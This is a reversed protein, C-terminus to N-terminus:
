ARRQPTRRHTSQGVSTAPAAEDADLHPAVWDWSPHALVRRLHAEAAAYTNRSADLIAVPRLKFDCTPHTESFIGAHVIALSERDVFLVLYATRNM